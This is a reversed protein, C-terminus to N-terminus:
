KWECQGDPWIFWGKTAEKLRSYSLTGDYSHFGGNMKLVLEHSKFSAKAREEDGNWMERYHDMNHDKNDDLHLQQGFIWEDDIEVSLYGHRYRAYVEKGDPTKGFFQTPCAGGGNISEIVIPEDPPLDPFDLLLENEERVLPYLADLWEDGSKEEKLITAKAIRIEELRKDRQSLLM